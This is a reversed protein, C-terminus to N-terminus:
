GVGDTSDGIAAGDRGEKFALVLDLWYEYVTTDAQLEPHFTTAMINAQQVAVPEGQYTALIKVKLGTATIRPARIFTMPLKGSGVPPQLQGIAESSDIQRGYGNRQITMDILKLSPQTPSTVKAALVIAGACTGLIAGGSQAFDIIAPLM